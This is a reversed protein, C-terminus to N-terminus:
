RLFAAGIMVKRFLERGETEEIARTSTGLVKVDYKELVGSKVLQVGCNLDRATENLERIM